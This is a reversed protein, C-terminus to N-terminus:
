DDWDGNSSPAQMPSGRAAARPNAHRRMNKKNSLVAFGKVPLREFESCVLVKQWDKLGRFHLQRTQRVNASSLMSRVWEVPEAENSARILTAGIVLWESAGSPDLPRIRDLGPDGAEDIFAIYSYSPASSSNSKTGTM